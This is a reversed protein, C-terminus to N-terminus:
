LPIHLRLLHSGTSLTGDANPITQFVPPAPEAIGYELARWRITRPACKMVKALQYPGRVQLASRLYNKDIEVRPRGVEGKVRRSVQLGPAPPDMAENEANGLCELM